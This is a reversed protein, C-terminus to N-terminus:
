KKTSVEQVRTDEVNKNKDGIRVCSFGSIGLRPLIRYMPRSGRELLSLQDASGGGM